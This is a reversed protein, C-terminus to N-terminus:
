EPQRFGAIGLVNRAPLTAGITKLDDIDVDLGVLGLGSLALEPWLLLGSWGLLVRGSSAAGRGRSM